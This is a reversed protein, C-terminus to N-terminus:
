RRKNLWGQRKGLFRYDSLDRQKTPPKPAPAAPPAPRPAVVVSAPVVPTVPQQAKALHAAIQEPTLPPRPARPRMQDLGRLQAAARAYVRTDLWHNERGPIMQWEHVAFGKRDTPSWSSQPSSSSTSKRAAPHLPLLGAPVAGREGDDASSACGATSSTRRWARRRRAVGHCGRPYASGTTKVDVKEAIGLITAANAVGKIAMVRSRPKRRVITTSRRTRFGSDIATMAIPLEVSLEREPLRPQDARRDSGSPRRQGHRRPDGRYDISWSEKGAGWGVVEYVWRDKQVDVGCTLLKVGEPRHESDRLARSPPLAAGLRAGRRSERGPRASCPTSSCASSRLGTRASRPLARSRVGRRTPRTATRPGSTFRRTAGFPKSARWEGREVM